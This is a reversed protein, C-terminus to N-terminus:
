ATEWKREPLLFEALLLILALAIFWQFYHIYDKFAADELATEPMSSLQKRIVSAAGEIDSLHVYVGKTKGALRELQPENLKSLITNGQDDRKAQGTSPDVIRSGEVSGIGVTNVVIGNDALQEATQETVPDHDEGDTLLVISKYRREKSNFAAASLKLAESIMTGQTPAMQPSAQQIYMRAAGHDLTLPMQLYARGAFVVLGIRDDELEDVLRNILQKAKELRNPRIDQALMSNSIDLAIMVDVGKREIKDMRGPRGPDAAGTVIATFAIMLLVFKLLFKKASYGKILENVLWEDGIKKITKQKWRITLWYLWILLPAALLGWLFATHQFQFNM